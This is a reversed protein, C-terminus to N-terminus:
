YTKSTSAPYITWCIPQVTRKHLKSAAKYYTSCQSGISTQRQTVEIMVIRVFPVGSLKPCISPTQMLSQSAAGLIELSEKTIIADALRSSRRSVQTLVFDRAHLSRSFSVIGRVAGISYEPKTGYSSNYARKPTTGILPTGHLRHTSRWSPNGFPLRDRSAVWSPFQYLDQDSYSSEGLATRRLSPSTGMSSLYYGFVMM